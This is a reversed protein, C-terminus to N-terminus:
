WRLRYIHRLPEFGQREYFRIAERNADYVNLQVEFIDRAEAWDQCARLLATGVGRKRQQSDVLLSDIVVRPARRLLPLSINKEIQIIAVGVLGVSDIALLIDGEPSDVFRQLFSDPRAPHGGSPQFYEPYWEIHLWDIQEILYNVAPFDEPGATRIHLSSTPHSTM